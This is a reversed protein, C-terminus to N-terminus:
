MFYLFSLVYFIREKKTQVSNQRFDKIKSAEHVIKKNGNKKTSFHWKNGIQQWKKKVIHFDYLFHNQELKM